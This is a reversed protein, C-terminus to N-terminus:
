WNALLSFARDACWGTLVRTDEPGTQMPAITDLNYRLSLLSNESFPRLIDGAPTRWATLWFLMFTQFIAMKISNNPTALRSM